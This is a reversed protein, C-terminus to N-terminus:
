ERKSEMEKFMLRLKPLAEATDCVWTQLISEVMESRSLSSDTVETYEDIVEIFHNPLEIIVQRAERDQLAKKKRERYLKQKEAPTLAM